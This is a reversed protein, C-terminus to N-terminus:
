VVSKAAMSRISMEGTRVWTNLDWIIWSGTIRRVLIAALYYAVFDNSSFGQIDGGERALTMWIFMMVLPLTGTLVYIVYEARYALARAFYARLLAPYAKLTRM